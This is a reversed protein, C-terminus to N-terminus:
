VQQTELFSLSNVLAQIKRNLEALLEYESVVGTAFSHATALIRDSPVDSILAVEVCASAQEDLTPLEAIKDSFATELSQISVNFSGHNTIYDRVVSQQDIYPSQMYREKALTSVQLNYGDTEERELIEGLRELLAPEVSEVQDYFDSESFEPRLVLFLEILTDIADSEQDELIDQLTERIEYHPLELVLQMIQVFFYFNNEGGDFTRIGHISLIQRLHTCYLDEIEDVLDNTGQDGYSLLLNTASEQCESFGLQDFIENAEAFIQYKLDTVSESLYNMLETAM